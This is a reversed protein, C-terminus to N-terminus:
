VCTCVCAYYVQSVCVCVTCVNLSNVGKHNGSM